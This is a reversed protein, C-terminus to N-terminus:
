IPRLSQGATAPAEPGNKMQRLKRYMTTKGIGLLRAALLPRRNSRQYAALIMTREMQAMTPFDSAVGTEVPLVTVVEANNGSSPQAVVREVVREVVKMIPEPLPAGCCRCQERGSWQVLECQQCHLREYAQQLAEDMDVSIVSEGYRPLNDSIDELALFATTNMLFKGFLLPSAGPKRLVRMTKKTARSCANDSGEIKEVTELVGYQEQFDRRGQGGYAFGERVM